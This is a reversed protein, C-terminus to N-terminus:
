RFVLRCREMPAEDEVSEFAGLSCDALELQWSVTKEGTGWRAAMNEEANHFRSVAHSKQVLLAAVESCPHMVDEVMKTSLAILPDAEHPGINRREREDMIAVSQFCQGPMIKDDARGPVSSVIEDSQGSWTGVKKGVDRPRRIVYEVERSLLGDCGAQLDGNQRGPTVHIRDGVESGENVFAGSIFIPRLLISHKRRSRRSRQFQERFAQSGTLDLLVGSIRPLSATSMM